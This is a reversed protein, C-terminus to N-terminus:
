SRPRARFTGPWVGNMALRVGPTALRVGPTALSVGCVGPEARIAVSAPHRNRANPSCRGATPQLLSSREPEIAIREHADQVRQHERPPQVLSPVHEVLLALQGAREVGALPVLRSGDADRRGHSGLVHRRRQVAVEAQVEVAADLGPAHEALVHAADSPRRVAAVGVQARLVHRGPDADERPRRVQGRDQRDGDAGREREADAALRANREAPEAVARRGVARRVLGHVEGAHPPERDHEHDVVVLERVRRRRVEVEGGGRQGRAPGGVPELADDDVAGVHEGDVALRTRRDLARAGAAPGRRELQHRQAHLAMGHM